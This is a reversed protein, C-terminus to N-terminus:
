AAGLAKRRRGPHGGPRGPVRAPRREVPAMTLLRELLGDDARVPGAAAEQPSVEALLAPLGALDTHEARCRPCGALHARVVGAEGPELASLVYAGLAHRAEDCRM